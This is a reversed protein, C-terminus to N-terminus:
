GVCSQVHATANTLLAVDSSICLDNFYCLTQAPVPRAISLAVLWCFSTLGHGSRSSGNGQTIQQAGPTGDRLDQRFGAAATGAFTPFALRAAARRAARVVHRGLDPVLDLVVGAVGLLRMVMVGAHVHGHRRGAVDLAVVAVALVVTRVLRAGAHHRLLEGRILRHFLHQGHGALNRLHRHQSNGARTVRQGVRGLGELREAAQLRLRRVDLEAERGVAQCQRVIDVFDAFVVHVVDGDGDVHHVRRHTLLNVRPDEPVVAADGAKFGCFDQVLALHQPQLHERRATHEGFDVRHQNRADVVRVQDIDVAFDLLATGKQVVDHRQNGFGFVSGHKSEGALAAGASRLQLCHLIGAHAAGVQHAVAALATGIRHAQQALVAAPLERLALQVVHVHDIVQVFAAAILFFDLQHALGLLVGPLLCQRGGAGHCLLWVELHQHGNGGLAAPADVLMEAVDALELHKFDRGGLGMNHTM